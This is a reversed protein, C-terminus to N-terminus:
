TGAKRPQTVNAPKGYDPVLYALDSFVGKAFLAAAL